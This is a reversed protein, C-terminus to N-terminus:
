PTEKKIMEIIPLIIDNLNEKSIYGKHKYRIKGNKDILYSEPMGTIGWTIYAQGDPDFGVTEFPDGYNNLLNQLDTPDDRYAIGYIKLHYNKKLSILQRHEIICTPCWTAFFTVMKIEGGLATQDLKKSPDFFQAVSFEPVPKDILALPKVNIMKMTFMVSLFILAILPIAYIFYRM